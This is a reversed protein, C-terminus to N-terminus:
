KKNYSNQEKKNIYEKIAFLIEGNISRNEQKALSRLQELLESPFRVTVKIENM